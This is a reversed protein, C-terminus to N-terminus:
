EGGGKKGSSQKRDGTRDTTEEEDALSEPVLAGHSDTTAGAKDAYGSEEAEDGQGTPEVTTGAQGSLRGKSAEWDRVSKYFMRDSGLNEMVRSQAESLTLGKATEHAVGYEVEKALVVAGDDIFSKAARALELARETLEGVATAEESKMSALDLGKISRALAQISGQVAGKKSERWKSYCMAAAQDQEMGEEGVANEICRSIFDQKEEGGRPSVKGIREKAM